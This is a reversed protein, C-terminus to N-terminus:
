MCHLPSPGFTKIQTNKNADDHQQFPECEDMTRLILKKGHVHM